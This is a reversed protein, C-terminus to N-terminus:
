NSHIISSFEAKLKRFIKHTSDTSGSDAVVLKSNGGLEILPYWSRVVNEIINEENYAPMVIYLNNMKIQIINISVFRWIGKREIGFKVSSKEGVQKNKLYHRSM